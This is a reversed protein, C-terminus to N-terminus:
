RAAPSRLVVNFPGAKANELAVHVYGPDHASGKPLAQELSRVLAPTLEELGGIRVAVASCAGVSRFDPPADAAPQAIRLLCAVPKLEADFEVNLGRDLELGLPQLRRTWEAHLRAIEDMAKPWTNSGPDLAVRLERMAPLDLRQIALASTASRPGPERRDPPLFYSDTFRALTDISDVHERWVRKGAHWLEATAPWARGRLEQWALARYSDQEDGKADRLGMEDPRVRRLRESAPPAGPTEIVHAQLTGLDGLEARAADGTLKWEFGDPWLMMARRLELQRLTALREVDDQERSTSTRAEVAFTREGYRYRMQREVSKADKKELKELFWRARDPFVYTATLRHPTEPAADYFLTSVSEFGSMGGILKQAAPKTPDDASKSEAPPKRAPADGSQAAGRRCAFAVTGALVIILAIARGM